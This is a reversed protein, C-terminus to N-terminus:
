AAASGSLAQLAATGFDAHGAATPHVSDWFLFQNQAAGTANLVGSNPDTFNGTWVPQTVNTFGFQGPNATVDDLLSWSNVFDLHLNMANGMFVLSSGLEANFIASYLSGAAAAAAGGSAVSPTKGLDPVFPVLFTKAGESGLTGVFKDINLVAQNIITLAGNPNTPVAPLAGFLLDNSGAWVTYLANPDAKPHAAQFYALQAPLDTLNANHGDTQGSQAGGFAYDNGGLLIPSPAPLNLSGALDQVWLPGNTFRGDSYPPSVPEMHLTATFVNGADSLSDGFSYITSFSPPTTAFQMGPAPGLTEANIAGQGSDSGAGNM